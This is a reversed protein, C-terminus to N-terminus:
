AGARRRILVVLAVLLSAGLATLGLWPVSSEAEQQQSSAQTQAAESAQAESAPSSASSAQAQAQQSPASSTAQPEEEQDSTQQSAVLAAEYEEKSITRGQADRYITQGNETVVEVQPAEAAQPQDGVQEAQAPNQGGGDQAQNGGPQAQNGGPQAQNITAADVNTVQGGSSNQNVGSITFQPSRNSFGRSGEQQGSSSYVIETALFRLTHPGEALEKSLVFSGEAVGASNIKQQHVVCAGQAADSPCAQGDDVKIYLQEGAPFGSVRFSITDGAQLTGPSVSSSTGPTDVSNAGGPPLAQATPLHSLGGLLLGATLALQALTRKRSPTKM